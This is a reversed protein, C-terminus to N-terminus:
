EPPSDDDKPKIIKDLVDRAALYNVIDPNVNKSWDRAMSRIGNRYGITYAIVGVGVLVGVIAKAKDDM